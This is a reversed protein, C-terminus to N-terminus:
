SRQIYGTVYAASQYTLNGARVFGLMWNDKYLKSSPSVGFLVAHYHPRKTLEGYEGCAYYKIKLPELDKRLRKVFLQFDRKCLGNDSTMHADDYTLTLFTATDWYDLEHMIRVAWEQTRNIRCAMCRGCPVTGIDALTLTNTCKM